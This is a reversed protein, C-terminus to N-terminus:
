SCCRAGTRGQFSTRGNGNWVRGPAEAPCACFSRQLIEFQYGFSILLTLFCCISASQLTAVKRASITVVCFQANTNWSSLLDCSTTPKRPKRSTNILLFLIDHKVSSVANGDLEMADGDEEEDQEEEEEEPVEQVQSRGGRVRQTQTPRQSQTQSPGARATSRGM